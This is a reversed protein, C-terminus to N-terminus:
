HKRLHEIDPLRLGSAIARLEDLASRLAEMVRALDCRATQPMGCGSCFEGVADLRLVALAMNQAPGDHLDAAVRHLFTENLATTRAGAERLQVQMRENEGLLTQTRDLQQRLHYSQDHITRDARHVMGVLLLYIAAGAVMVLVWSRWQASRIDRDLGKMSHYFEAVAVIGGKPDNRVPVHVEILRPWNRNELEHDPDDLDHVDAQLTGALAAALPGGVISRRGIQSRENSYVISGDPSWLKFRVVKRALPGDVFIRDLAIRTADDVIGAVPGSPLEAVLISEVYVAAIAAARNIGSSEIQRGLWSGIVIMGIALAALSIVLFRRSWDLRILSQPIAIQM